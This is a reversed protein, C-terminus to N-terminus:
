NVGLTSKLLNYLGYASIMIFLGIVGWMMHRFGEERGDPSDANKIFDLVGWVFYLIAVAMLLYTIPRVIDSIFNKFLDSM